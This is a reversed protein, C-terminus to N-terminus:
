NSDSVSSNNSELLPDHRRAPTPKDGVYHVVQNYQREIGDITEEEYRPLAGDSVSEQV